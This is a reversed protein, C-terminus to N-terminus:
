PTRLWGVPELAEGILFARNEKIDLLIAQSDLAYHEGMQSRFVIQKGDPSWLPPSYINAGIQADLEGRFCYNTTVGTKLDFIGLYRDASDGFWPQVDSWYSYWFAIHRNEPSWSLDSIYFWPYYDSLHTLQNIKGDQSVEFIEYAPFDEPKSFLNLAMAFRSGDSTWRPRVHMDGRPDLQALVANSNIDWLTYYFPGSIGGQLYVVQDLNKDYEIVRYWYDYFVEPYNAELFYRESTFPNLVLFKSVTDFSSEEQILDIILQEENLWKAYSWDEEMPILKAQANGDGIVLEDTKGSIYSIWNHEPSAAFFYFNNGPQSLQTKVLSSMDMLYTEDGDLILTGSSNLKSLDTEIEPCKEIIKPSSCSVLFSLLLLSLSWNNINKM